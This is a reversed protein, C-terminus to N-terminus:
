YGYGFHQQQAHASGPYLPAQSGAVPHVASYPDAAYSYSPNSPMMPVASAASIPAALPMPPLGYNYQSYEDAYGYDYNQEYGYYDMGADQYWISQPAYQMEVPVSPPALQMRRLPKNAIIKRVPEEIDKCCCCLFAGVLMILAATIWAASCVAAAAMIQSDGDLTQSGQSGILMSLGNCYSLQGCTGTYNASPLSIADDSQLKPPCIKDLTDYIWLNRTKSQHKSFAVALVAFFLGGGFFPSFLLACFIAYCNTSSGSSAACFAPFAVFVMAFAAGLAGVIWMLEDWYELLFALQSRTGDASGCSFTSPHTCAQGAKNCTCGFWYKMDSKCNDLTYTTSNSLFGTTGNTTCKNQVTSKAIKDCAKVVAKEPLGGLYFCLALIGVACFLLVVSSMILWRKRLVACLDTMTPSDPLCGGPEKPLALPLCPRACRAPNQKMVMQQTEQHTAPWSGAARMGQDGAHAPSQDPTTSFQWLLSLM